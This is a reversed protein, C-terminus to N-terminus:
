RTSRVDAAFDRSMHCLRHLLFHFLNQATIREANDFGIGGRGTVFFVAIRKLQLVKHIGSPCIALGGAAATRM